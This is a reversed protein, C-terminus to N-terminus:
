GATPLPHGVVPSPEARNSNANAASQSPHGCRQWRGAAGRPPPAAQLQTKRAGRLLQWMRVRQVDSNSGAWCGAEASCVCDNKAESRRCARGRTESWWCCGSFDDRTCGAGACGGLRAGCRRQEPPAALAAPPLALREILAGRCRCCWRLAVLRRGAAVAQRRERRCARCTCSPWPPPHASGHPSLLGSPHAALLVQPQM